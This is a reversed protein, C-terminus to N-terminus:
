HRRRRSTKFSEAGHGGTQVEATLETYTHVITRKGNFHESGLQNWLADVAALWHRINAIHAQQKALVEPTSVGWWGNLPFNHNTPAESALGIDVSYFRMCRRVLITEYKEAEELIHIIHPMAELAIVEEEESFASFGKLPDEILPVVQIDLRSFSIVLGDEM